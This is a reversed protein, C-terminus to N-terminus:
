PQTKGFLALVEADTKGETAEPAHHRLTKIIEGLGTSELDSKLQYHTDMAKLQELTIKVVELDRQITELTAIAIDGRMKYLEELSVTRANM